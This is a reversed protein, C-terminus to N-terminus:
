RRLAPQTMQTMLCSVLPQFQMIPIQGVAAPQGIKDEINFGVFDVIECSLAVNARRKVLGDIGDIDIGKPHQPHEFCGTLQTLM